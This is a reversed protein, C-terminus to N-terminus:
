NETRMKINIWIFDSITHIKTLNRIKAPKTFFSPIIDIMM